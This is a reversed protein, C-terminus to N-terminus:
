SVADISTKPYPLVDYKLKGLLEKKRKGRANFFIYRHKRPRDVYYVNEEGYKEKLADFVAQTKATFTDNETLFPEKTEEDCSSSSYYSPRLSRPFEIQLELWTSPM